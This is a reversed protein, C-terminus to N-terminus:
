PWHLRYYRQPVAPANTDTFLYRPIAPGLFYWDALNTTYEVSFDGAVSNNLAFTVNTGGLGAVNTLYLWPSTPFYNSLVTNLESQSVLGDGNFDGPALNTTTVPTVLPPAQFVRFSGESSFASGAFAGDVAQVSWYYPTGLAYSFTSSLGLQGNGPAPLCRFGNAASMGSSVDLGGLTTGVRM